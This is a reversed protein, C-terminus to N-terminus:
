EVVELGLSADLLWVAGADAGSEDSGPAGIALLQAGDAGLGGIASVAMVAGITSRDAGLHDLYLPLLLMSAYGAAQLLQALTLLVFSRTFLPPM